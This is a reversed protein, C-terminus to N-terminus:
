GICCLISSSLWACVGLSSETKTVIFYHCHPCQTHLSRGGLRKETMEVSLPIDHLLVSTLVTGTNTDVSTMETGLGSSHSHFTSKLNSALNEEEGKIEVDAEGAEERLINGKFIRALRKTQLIYIM